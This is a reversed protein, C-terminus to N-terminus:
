HLLDTRRLPVVLVSYPKRTPVEIKPIVLAFTIGEENTHDVDHLMVRFRSCVIIDLYADEM